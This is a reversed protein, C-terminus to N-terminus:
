FRLVVFVMSILACVKEPIPTTSGEDEGAAVKDASKGGSDQDEMKKEEVLEKREGGFDGVGELLRAEEKAELSRTPGCDRVAINEDVAAPEQAAQRNNKPTRRRRTNAAVGQGVVVAIPQQQQARGRRAGSRLERM